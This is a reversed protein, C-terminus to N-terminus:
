RTRQRPDDGSPLPALPGAPARDRLANPRRAPTSRRIRGNGIAVASGASPSRAASPPFAGEPATDIGENALQDIEYAMDRSLSAALLSTNFSAKRLSGSIGLITTM